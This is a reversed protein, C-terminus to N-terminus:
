KSLLAEAEKRLDAPPNSKLAARLPEEAEARRGASVLAKGLMFQVVPQDPARKVAERLPPVAEAFKQQRMQFRGLLLWPMADQPILGAATEAHRKAGAWDGLEALNQAANLFALPDNPALAMAREFTKAAESRRGCGVQAVGLQNVISADDPKLAAARAIFGLSTIADNMRAAIRSLGELAPVNRDDKALVARYEAAAEALQDRDLLERARRLRDAVPAEPVPKAATPPSAAGEGPGCSALAVLVLAAAARM